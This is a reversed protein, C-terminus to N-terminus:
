EKTASKLLDVMGKGMAEGVLLYTEANQNYHYGQNKPSHEASRWFDRIEV